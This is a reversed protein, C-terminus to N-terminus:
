DMMEVPSSRSIQRGDFQAVVTHTVAIHMCVMNGNLETYDNAEGPRGFCIILMTSFDHLEKMERCASLGVVEQRGPRGYGNMSSPRSALGCIGGRGEKGRGGKGM